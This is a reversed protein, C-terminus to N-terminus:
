NGAGAGDGYDNVATVAVVWGDALAAAVQDPHVNILVDNNILTVLGDDVAVQEEIWGQTLWLAVQRPHAQITEDGKVLTVLDPDPTNVKKIKAM